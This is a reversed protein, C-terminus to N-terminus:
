YRQTTSSDPDSDSPGSVKRRKRQLGPMSREIADKSNAKVRFKADEEDALTDLGGALAFGALLPPPKMGHHSCHCPLAAAMAELLQMM